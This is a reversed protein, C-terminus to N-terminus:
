PPPFAKIRRKEEKSLVLSPFWCFHQGQHSSSPLLMDQENMALFEFEFAWIYLKDARSATQFQSWLSQLATESEPLHM